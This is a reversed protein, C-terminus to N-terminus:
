ATNLSSFALLPDSIHTKSYIFCLVKFLSIQRVFVCVCAVIILSIFCLLSLCCTHSTPPRSLFLSLPSLLTLSSVSIHNMATFLIQKLGVFDRSFEDSDRGPKLMCVCLCVFVAVCVSILPVFLCEGVCLCVRVCDPGQSLAILSCTDSKVHLERVSDRVQVPLHSGGGGRLFVVEEESLIVNNLLFILYHILQSLM